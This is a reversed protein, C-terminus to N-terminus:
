IYEIQGLEAVVFNGEHITRSTEDDLCPTAGCKNGEFGKSAIAGSSREAIDIMMLGLRLQTKCHCMAERSVVLM